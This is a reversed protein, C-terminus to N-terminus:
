AAVPIMRAKRELQFAEGTEVLAADLKTLLDMLMPSGLQEREIQECIRGMAQAGITLSSGKLAHASAKLLQPKNAAIASKIESVQRATNELYLDILEIVINDEGDHPNALDHLISFDVARKTVTAGEDDGDFGSTELTANLERMSSAIGNASSKGIASDGLMMRLTQQLRRRSFPKPLVITAGASLCTSVATIATEATIILVPIKMLRKETRMHRILDPGDLYPMSMDLVAGAYNADSLLSRFAARGDELAVVTYGDEELLSALWHRVVPDDDAILVRRASKNNSAHM